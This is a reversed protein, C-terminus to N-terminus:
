ASDLVALMQEISSFNDRPKGAEKGRAIEAADLRKWDAYSVVRISRAALLQEISEDEPIQAPKLDILDALLSQVTEDSDKKNTGILGSPGRKIWGVAYLGLEVCGRDNPIVGRREDFPIGPIPVGRYGVSRFFLGVPLTQTQGTGVARQAGPDGELRNLELEMSEVVGAENGNLRLPSKFFHMRLQKDAGARGSEVLDKLTAYNRKAAARDSRELEIASAPNLDLVSNDDLLFDCGEIHGLEAIEKPTFAAQAPGRRGIVHVTKVRSRALAEVAYTAMDTQRLEDVPMLLIRAVDMAVNGQGVVVAVEQDLAFQRDAYDPHGNYWACFETATYSHKLDEGDIGLSRDTQSGFAFIVADHHERLQEVTLDRGIAVNGWFRFQENSATRDYAKIVNRIKAHDPAVGYRVLGYPVPLREFMNIQLALDTKILADAAYFGSPGSGVIAVRLPRGASGLTPDSV